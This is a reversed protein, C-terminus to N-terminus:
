SWTTTTSALVRAAVRPPHVHPIDATRRQATVAPARIARARRRRRRRARGPARGAASAASALRLLPASMEGPRGAEGRSRSPRSSATVATTVASAAQDVERLQHDGKAVGPSRRYHRHRPELAFSIPTGPHVRCSSRYAMRQDRSRQTTGIGSLAMRTRPLCLGLHAAQRFNSKAFSVAM